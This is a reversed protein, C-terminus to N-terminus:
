LKTSFGIYFRRGLTDYYAPDTLGTANNSGPVRGVVEPPADLLNDIGARLVLNNGFSWTGALDFQNHAGNPDTGPVTNPLTPLYRWNLSVNAPGISYGLTTFMKYPFQAGSTGNGTTDAYDVFAAGSSTQISYEGLWNMVYHVSLSGPINLGFADVDAGWNVEVDVGTTRIAGLNTYYGSIGAPFGFIGDRHIIQCYKNNIDYTPNNGTGNLCQEYAVASTLGEIAGTIKISYWDISANLQSLLPTDFPSKIVTGATWTTASESKLNPNGQQVDLAINAFTGLGVYSPTIPVGHALQTCLADAKARNPNSPSNGYPATTINSCPDYTPVPTVLATPPQYLEAVNPARNALQYGGRFSLWDVAKWTALAKYTGVEGAKNYSSFRAGLDLELSKMFPLDKVVPVLLEGYAEAVTTQGGAPSVDFVGSAASLINSVTMTPDPRFRFRDRRYDGGIAARLQGAPLDILGGQLDAEAIDQQISTNAKMKAEIIDLCDQSPTFTKFVPLGTTCTANRGLFNNANSYGAGFFPQAVLTQYAATNVFGSVYDTLIDTNGHSGYVDWTWDQFIGFAPIKGKLGGLVQYTNTTNVITEPGLYPLEMNLDWAGNPGAAGTRSDLLIKLQPPVAHDQGYTCGGTAACGLGVYQPLTAGGFGVTAPDIANPNSNYPIMASWAISAPVYNSVSTTRTQTFMAQGYATVYDNIDYHGNAFGSYRELPLSLEAALNNHELGYNGAGTVVKFEPALPGTYGVARPSGAVTTDAVGPVFLSGDSNVGYINGGVAAANVTGPPVRSAPCGAGVGSFVCNVAAQSPPNNVFGSTDTTSFQPIPLFIDGATGPDTYAASYFKRDRQYVPDRNAYNLGLMVNGRDGDINAGLLMSGQYQAGDGHETEGWQGDLELGTFNHRLKFNVVGAIADAGYVAAAGGTITEVSQIASAPISNLDIALSANFPQARRGDILVLTRNAGLGRLNVTAAGPSNTPSAQVDAAGSYQNSGAGFEPLKNLVAEIGVQSSKQLVARNVTIIPSAASYDRRVIRSGTVVIQPIPAPKTKDQAHATSGLPLVVATLLAAVRSSRLIVKNLLTRRSAALTAM